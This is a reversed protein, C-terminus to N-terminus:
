RLVKRLLLAGVVGGGAYLVWDPLGGDSPPPPPPFEPQSALGEFFEQNQQRARRATETVVWDVADPDTVPGTYGGPPVVPAPPRPPDPIPGSGSFSDWLGKASYAIGAVAGSGILIPVLLPLM